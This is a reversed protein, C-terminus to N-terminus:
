KLVFTTTGTSTAYTSTATTVAKVTYTGLTSRTTTSYTWTATGATGTTLTKSSISRTGLTITARVSARNIALGNTDKVTVTITVRSGRSYSAANTVATTVTQRIVPTPTPTPATTPTPAPTPTPAAPLTPVNATVLGYGYWNDIGATGLDRASWELVSRLESASLAPYQSKLVALVGAVHPTAMSTGSMYAYQNDPYTSEISVGPAAVDVAPGTSSFYARVNNSDTAAVAIAAPYRAPYGVNDNTGSSNGSNGAAAVVLVGKNVANNVATEMATTGSSSGLSMSIIDVGQSVAWDIGEVVDTLTGSGASDLVKVAYLNADPAVGLVGLGNDDAAITGACHTGHGHDDDYSTTYSVASYGGKLNAVLDEHTTDIGTDIVAVDVGAGKYGSAQATPAEVRTVGWDLTDDAVTVIIDKEVALIAPNRRLQAAAASTLDASQMKFNRYQHRVQGSLGVIDAQGQSLTAASTGPRYTIVYRGVANNAAAAGANQAILGSGLTLIMAVVTFIALSKKM